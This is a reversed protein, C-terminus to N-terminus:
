IVTEPAKKLFTKSQTEKYVFSICNFHLAITSTIYSTSKSSPFQWDLIVSVDFAPSLFVHKNFIYAILLCILIM